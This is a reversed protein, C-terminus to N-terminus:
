ESFILKIEKLLKKQKTWIKHVFELRDIGILERHPYLLNEQHLVIDSLNIIIGIEGLCKNKYPSTPSGSAPYIGKEIIYDEMGIWKPNITIDIAIVQYKSSDIEYVFQKEDQLTKNDVPKDETGIVNYGAELLRSGIRPALGDAYSDVAGVCVFIPERTKDIMDILKNM